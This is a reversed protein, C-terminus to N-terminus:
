KYEVVGRIRRLELSNTNFIADIHQRQAQVDARSYLHYYMSKAVLENFVHMDKGDLAACIVNLESPKPRLLNPGVAWRPEDAAAIQEIMATFAGLKAMTHLHRKTARLQRLWVTRADPDTVLKPEVYRIMLRTSLDLVMGDYLKYGGTTFEHYETATSYTETGWDKVHVRYHGKSRRVIKIPTYSHSTYVMPPMYATPDYCFRFTNNPLFRGFMKGYCYLAYEEGDQYLRWNRGVPKGRAGNRAKGFLNHAKAYSDLQM